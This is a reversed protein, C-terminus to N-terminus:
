EKIIKLVLLRQQVLMFVAIVFPVSILAVLMAVAQGSQLGGQSPREM